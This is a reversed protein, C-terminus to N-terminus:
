ISTRQTRQRYIEYSIIGTAMAANLSELKGEMNIHILEDALNAIDDTLGSGENGIMFASKGKFDVDFYNKKGRLHAAYIKINNEKLKKIVSHLDEAIYIPVRFISGMTARIVKPSFLDVTNKSLIIGSIGAGESTRIITGLNGPDQMDEIIIISPNEKQIITTLENKPKIAITLIGQPTDTDSMKDMIDDAVFYVVIYHNDLLEIKISDECFSDNFKVNLRDELKLLKEKSNFFSQSIYIEKLLSLPTALFIRLGELIFLGRDRRERRKKILKIENKINKNQLSTIM